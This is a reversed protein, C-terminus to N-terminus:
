VVKKLQNSLVRKAEYYVLCSEDEKNMNLEILSVVTSTFPSFYVQYLQGAHLLVNPMNIKESVYTGDTYREHRLVDFGDWTANDFIKRDDKNLQISWKKNM